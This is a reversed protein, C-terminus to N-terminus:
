APSEDQGGPTAQSRLRPLHTAAFDVVERQRMLRATGRGLVFIQLSAAQADFLEGLTGFDENDLERERFSVWQRVGDVLMPAGNDVLPLSDALGRREGLHLSTNREHGVGLLLVWGDVDYVRALPSSEGLGDELRHDGTIRDALPGAAAFSTQPHSSRLVGPFRRFTEPVTGMGGTPTTLPDYAPMSARIVPWWSEPVPPNVWTQPDSLDPTHTPMVLTGAGGVVNQLAEIVAVSGGCVWGLASLSSHVVVTAGERLGAHRLGASIEAATLMIQESSEAM